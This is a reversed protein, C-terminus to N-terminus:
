AEDDDGIHGAASEARRSPGYYGYQYGYRYDYGTTRKLSVGNAVVGLLPANIDALRERLFAAADRTNKGIQSVIVAGDVKTLLPIADSVISLPPTDVVVLEYHETAWSLLDAMAKSEILEAPNPPQHGAALIDLMVDSTRGNVRTAIPVECVTEAATVDGVLLESLGPSMEVGYATAISPRRLDADILLTKTGTEQAAQALNRAVTSKGDAPAASAIVLSRIERDVNFYRLYARLLRFVEQEGHQVAVEGPSVGTYAKSVPVTALVPLDYTAGLDEVTMMRREFRELLFATTLGLLLGLVLGLATNRTIKPSSPSTPVSARKVVQADGDQLQGLIRLSEARDLLAQGNTGALQQPSMAAIQRQVLHLAQAVQAQQQSTQISIFNQVYDNAIKAALRRSRSTASVLAVTTQGQQTVGIASNVAAPTLGVQRATAAAVGSQSILLQINTAMITPDETPSTPTIQLGSAQQQLDPNPFLVSTTATYQKVERKSFGFAAAGVAIMLLVVVWWRRRLVALVRELDLHEASAANMANENERVSM